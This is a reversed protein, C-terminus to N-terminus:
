DIEEYDIYDGVVKTAEKKGQPKRHVHVSGEPKPPQQQEFAGFQQEFRQQLKKSAYRLIYPAALKLAFRLMLLVLIVILFTRLADM